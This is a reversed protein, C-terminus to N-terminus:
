GHLRVAGAIREARKFYLTAEVGRYFEVAQELHTAAAAPDSQALTEAARLSSFAADTLSGIQTYIGVAAAHDGALSVLLAERWPTELPLASTVAELQASRGTRDATEALEAGSYPLASLLAATSHAHGLLEDMLERAADADGRVLALWASEALEPCLSQVMGEERALRLARAEVDVAERMAGRRALIRARTGLVFSAFEGDYGARADGFAQLRELADDWAGALYEGAAVEATPYGIRWPMRRGVWELSERELERFREVDGFVLHATAHNGLAIGLESDQLERLGQIAQSEEDLGGPDGCEVRAGGRYAHASLVDRPDAAAQDAVALYADLLRIAEPMRSEVVAYKACNLLVRAHYINVPAGEVLELAREVHRRRGEGDGRSAHVAALGTHAHAAAPRDIPLLLEIAAVLEAESDVGCGALSRALDLALYGRDADDDATLELAARRHRAAADHAQMRHARDGAARLALRAAERVVATDQGAAGAYELAQALHHARMEVADDRDSSLQGIWGAALEHKRARQARPIQGYAVDRVLVHRFVYEVDGEVSSRQARRLFEKRVLRHLLEELQRRQGGGIAELAGLWAVKGVVAADQLLQKEDAALADLRAAIIGQVSEPLVGSTAPAQDALMRVFEEAYLPNGEARELLAAQTEAPLQTDALLTAILVRTDDDSLPRLAVTAANPKGGGWDRRRELLEPRASCIVLLPVEGAWEVLHDVFDLMADDAWHMDEFVLVMPGRAALGEVLRRWAAFAEAPTGAGRVGAGDVGVLAAAHGSVWGADRDDGVAGAVMEGIKGAAAASGDSELIGAEAKIAEGLAWWTVGDGYPLCRGQRWRVLEPREDVGRSLEWVLRSKGIGPVGVVTVLQVERDAFAREAADRLTDLERGRGVMATASSQEVDTGFRSRAEIARWAAVPESKGKAAVPAAPGYNIARNTARYTVEGVLVGDTPAASELRATTNVVDGSAMGEGRAPDADLAILAEGTNVGIRM